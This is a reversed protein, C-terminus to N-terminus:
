DEGDALEAYREITPRDFSRKAGGLRRKKAGARNRKEEGRRWREEVEEHKIQM